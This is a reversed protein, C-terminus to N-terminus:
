VVSRTSGEWLWLPLRVFPFYLGSGRLRGGSGERGACGWGPPHNGCRLPVQPRTEPCRHEGPRGPLGPGEAPSGRSGWRVWRQPAGRRSPNPSPFPRRRTVWVPRLNGLHVSAARPRRWRAGFSGDPFPPPSSLLSGSSGGAVGRPAGRERGVASQLSAAGLLLFWPLREGTQKERIGAAMKGRRWGPRLKGGVAACAASRRRPSGACRRPPATEKGGNSPPARPDGRPERM